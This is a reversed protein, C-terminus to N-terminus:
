KERGKRDIGLIGRVVDDNVYGNAKIVDALIDLRVSKSILGIYEDNSLIVVGSEKDM